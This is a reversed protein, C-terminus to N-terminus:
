RGTMDDDVIEVCRSLAAVADGVVFCAIVVARVLSEISRNVLRAQLRFHKQQILMDRAQFVFPDAREPLLDVIDGLQGVGNCAVVM